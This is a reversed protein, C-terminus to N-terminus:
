GRAGRLIRRDGDTWHDRYWTCVEFTDQLERRKEALRDRFGRLTPGLAPDAARNIKQFPDDVNDYLHESGDRRYIAYTHRKDRM